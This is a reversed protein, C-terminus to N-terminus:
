EVLMEVENLFAGGNGQVGGITINIRLMLFQLHLFKHFQLNNNIMTVLEIKNLVGVNCAFM